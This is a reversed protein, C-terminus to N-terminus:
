RRITRTTAVLARCADSSLVETPLFHKRAFTSKGSGCPGVLRRALAEPDHRGTASAADREFVAMQTPPASSATRRRRDPLFRVAYGHGAPSAPPGPRSSPRTWEFRHDRHRFKGAPLTEFTVNYEREADDGRGDRRAFEFLVREFAALRPPDLHEIVEVVAAADFGQLRRDRYILAGQFLEVRERQRPPLRDLKLRRAAIELARHSVDM